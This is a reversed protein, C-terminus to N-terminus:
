VGQNAPAGPRAPPPGQTGPAAPSPMMIPIEMNSLDIEYAEGLFDILANIPGSNGTAQALGLLPQFLTQMLMQADAQQKQQNKRRGSGAEITYALEMSARQPDANVLAAWTQTLPGMQPQGLPGMAAMDEGLLPAVTQPAVAVRAMFGEARAIDSQWQEACEAMDEPRSMLNGQRIQVEASSRIQTQGEGGYLLSDTGMAMRFAAEVM